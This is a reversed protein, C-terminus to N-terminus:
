TSISLIKWYDEKLSTLETAWIECKEVAEQKLATEVVMRDFESALDTFKSQLDQIEVNLKETEEALQSEVPLSTLIKEMEEIERDMDEYQLQLNAYFSPACECCLPLELDYEAVTHAVLERFLQEDTFNESADEEETLSSSLGFLSSVAHNTMKQSTSTPSDTANPLPSDSLPLKQSGSAANQTPIQSPNTPTPTPRKASSNILANSEWSHPEHPPLKTRTKPRRPQLALAPPTVKIYDKRIISTKSPGDSALPSPTASPLAAGFKSAPGQSLPDEDGNPRPLAKLAIIPPNLKSPYATPPQRSGFDTVSLPSPVSSKESAWLPELPTSSLILPKRRLEGALSEISKDLGIPRFCYQCIINPSTFQELEEFNVNLWVRSQGTAESSSKGALAVESPDKENQM